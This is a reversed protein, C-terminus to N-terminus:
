WNALRFVAMQTPAGLRSDETGIPHFRVRYGFREAVEESWTHFESRSWEFRHDPHRRDGAPLSPWSVNYDRNPTTIVITGPRAFEFLAREVSPLRQPDVHEVVEALVAADYGELRRDRYTM